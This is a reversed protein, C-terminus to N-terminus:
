QSDWQFWKIGIFSFVIIYGLNALLVYTTELSWPTSSLTNQFLTLVTGVPSWRAVQQLTGGFVGSIGAVALLILAIYVIRVVANVTDASKLLGVIAQGISLFVAGGIIAAFLALVYVSAALQVRSVISGIVLVVAAIVLNALTQVMLRSVMITWEPAPTVRLRQFVGGDRDRAITIAYGFLSSSIIGIALSIAFIYSPGGLRVQAKNSNYAFLILVPTLTSLFLSRGNKLLVNVDAQLLYRLSKIPSVDKNV